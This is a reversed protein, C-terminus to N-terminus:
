FIGCFYNNCYKKAIVKSIAFIGNKILKVGILPSLM